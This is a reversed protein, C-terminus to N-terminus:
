SPRQPIVKDVSSVDPLYFLQYLVVSSAKFYAAEQRKTSIIIAGAFSIVSNGTTSLNPKFFAAALQYMGSVGRWGVM